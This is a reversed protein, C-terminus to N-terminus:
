VTIPIKYEFEKIIKFINSCLSLLVYVYITTDDEFYNTIIFNYLKFTCNSFLVNLYFCNNFLLQIWTSFMIECNPMSQHRMALSIVDTSYYSQVLM